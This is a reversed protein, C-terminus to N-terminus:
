YCGLLLLIVISITYMGLLLLRTMSKNINIVNKQIRCTHCLFIIRNTETKRGSSNCSKYKESLIVGAIQESKCANRM